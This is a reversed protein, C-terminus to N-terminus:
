YKGRILFILFRNLQAYVPIGGKWFIWVFALVCDLCIYSSISFGFWGQEVCTDGYKSGGSSFSRLWDQYLIARARWPPRANLAKFQGSCIPRSATQSPRPYYTNSQYLVCMRAFQCIITIILSFVYPQIVHIYASAHNCWHIGDKLMTKKFSSKVKDLSSGFNPQILGQLFLLYLEVIWLYIHPTCM